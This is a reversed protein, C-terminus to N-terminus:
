TQGSSRYLIEREKVVWDVAAGVGAGIGAYGLVALTADRRGTENEIIAALPLVALAGIAAGILSGRIVSDRVIRQSSVIERVGSKPLIREAGAQDTITLDSPGSSKLTCDMREGSNLTVLMRTGSPQDDLKEWRGPIVGAQLSNVSLFVLLMVGILNAVKM